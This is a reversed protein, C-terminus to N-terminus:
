RTKWKLSLRDNKEKFEELKELNHKSEFFSANLQEHLKTDNKDLRRTQENMTARTLSMTEVNQDLDKQIRQLSGEVLGKTETFKGELHGYDESLM